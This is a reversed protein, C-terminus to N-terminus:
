TEGSLVSKTDQEEAMPWTQPPLCYDRGHLERGEVEYATLPEGWALFVRFLLLSLGYDLYSAQLVGSM